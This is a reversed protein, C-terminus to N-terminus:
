CDCRENKGCRIREIKDSFYANLPLTIYVPTSGFFFFFFSSKSLAGWNIHQGFIVKIMNDWSMTKRMEYNFPKTLANKKNHHDSRDWIPVIPFERTYTHTTQVSLLWTPGGRPFPFPKVKRSLLLHAKQLKQWVCVCVCVVKIQLTGKKRKPQQWWKLFMNCARRKLCIM